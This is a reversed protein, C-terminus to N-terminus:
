LRTLCWCVLVFMLPTEPSPASFIIKLFVTTVSFKGFKICLMLKCICSALHNCLLIFVFLHVDLCVTTLSSFSLFFNRLAALSFPDHIQVLIHNFASKEDFVMATLLYYFSISLTSFSCHWGLIRFGAFKDLFSPSILVNGSLCFSLSDTALLAERCSIIFSTNYM